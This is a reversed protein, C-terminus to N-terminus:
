LYPKAVFARFWSSLLSLTKTNERKRPLTMQSVLELAIGAAAHNWRHNRAPAITPSPSAVVVFAIAIVLLELMM